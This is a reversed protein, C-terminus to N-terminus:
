ATLCQCYLLFDEGDRRHHIPRVPMAPDQVPQKGSVRPKVCFHDRGIGDQV